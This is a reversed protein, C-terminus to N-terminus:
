GIRRRGYTAAIARGPSRRIQATGRRRRAAKTYWFIAQQSNLPVGKGTAYQIGLQGEANAYGMDAAKRFWSVAQTLDQGPGDHLLMMGLFYESDPLGKDAGRRYWAAAKGYDVPVGEGHSYMVGLNFEAKSDGQRAAKGFWALARQYDKAVGSGQAYRSGLEQQSKADGLAAAKSACRM